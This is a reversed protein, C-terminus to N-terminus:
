LNYGRELAVRNMDYLKPKVAAKLAADIQEFPIGLSKALAGIMIVNVTKVNGLEEAIAIADVAIVKGARKELESVINEPYKRVGTIVPMPLIEQENVVITGGEKLYNTYRM